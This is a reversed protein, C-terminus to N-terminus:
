AGIGVSTAVGQNPTLEVLVPNGVVVFTLAGTSTTRVWLINTGSGAILTGVIMSIVPIAPPAPPISADTAALRVMVNRVEALNSGDGTKLQCTLTTGDAQIDMFLLGKMVKKVFALTQAGQSTGLETQFGSDVLMPEGKRFDSTPTLTMEIFLLWQCDAPRRHGVRLM